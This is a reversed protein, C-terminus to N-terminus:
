HLCIPEGTAGKQATWDETLAAQPGQRRPQPQHRLLVEHDATPPAQLQHAYAQHTSPPQWQRGGHWADGTWVGRGPIGRRELRCCVLM